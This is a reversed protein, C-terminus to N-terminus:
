AGSQGVYYAFLLVLHGLIGCDSDSGFTPIRSPTAVPRQCGFLRPGQQGVVDQEDVIAVILAAQSAVFADM